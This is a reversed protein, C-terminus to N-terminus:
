AGTFKNASNSVVRRKFFFCNVIEFFKKQYASRNKQLVKYRSLTEM